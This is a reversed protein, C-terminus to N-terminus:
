SVNMCSRYHLSVKLLAIKRAKNFARPFELEQLQAMINHAEETTMSSLPRKGHGFASSIREARQYRFIRVLLLYALLCTAWLFYNRQLADRTAAIILRLTAMVSSSRTLILFMIIKSTLVFAFGCLKYIDLPVEESETENPRTITSPYTSWGLNCDVQNYYRPYWLLSFKTPVLM